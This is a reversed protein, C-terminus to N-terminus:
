EWVIRALSLPPLMLPQAPDAKIIQAPRREGSALDAAAIGMGFRRQTQRTMRM